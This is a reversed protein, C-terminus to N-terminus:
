GMANFNWVAGSGVTVLALGQQGRVQDGAGLATGGDRSVLVVGKGSPQPKWQQGAGGCKNQVAKGGKIDVCKNSGRSILYVYGDGADQVVWQQNSQGPKPTFLIIPTNDDKDDGYVDMAKGGTTVHYTKGPAVPPKSPSASPSKSTSTSASPSASTPPEALPTGPTTSPAPPPTPPGSAAAPKKDDDGGGVVGIVAGFLLGVLATAVLAAIVIRRSVM